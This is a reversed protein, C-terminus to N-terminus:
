RPASRTRCTRWSAPEEGREGGGGRAARERGRAARGRSPAAGGRHADRRRLLRPDRPGQGDSGRIVSVNRIVELVAGAHGAPPLAPPLHARRARGPHASVGGTARMRGWCAARAAGSRRRCIAPSRRLVRREGRRHSGRRRDPLGGDRRHRHDAAPVRVGAGARARRPAAGRADLAAATFDALAGAFAAEDASWVKGSASDGVALLGVVRGQRRIAASSCRARHAVSRGLDGRHRGLARRRPHRRNGPHARGELAPARGRVGAPPVHREVTHRDTAREYHDLAVLARGKEDHLWIGAKARRSRRSRRARSRACRAGNRVARSTAVPSDPGPPTRGSSARSAPRSTRLCKPPLPM